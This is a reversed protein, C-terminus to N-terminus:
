TAVSCSVTYAKSASDPATSHCTLKNPGPSVVLSVNPHLWTVGSIPMVEVGTM